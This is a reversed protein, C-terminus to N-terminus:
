INSKVSGKHMDRGFLNLLTDISPKGVDGYKSIVRCPICCALSSKQLIGQNAFQGVLMRHECLQYHGWGTVLGASLRSDRCFLLM